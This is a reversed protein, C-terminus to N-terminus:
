PTRKENSQQSKNLLRSWEAADPAVSIGRWEERRINEKFVTGKSEAAGRCRWEVRQWPTSEM